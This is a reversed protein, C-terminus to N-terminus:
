IRVVAKTQGVAVAVLLVSLCRTGRGRKASPAVPGAPSRTEVRSCVTPRFHGLEVSRPAQKTSACKERKSPSSTSLRPLGATRRPEPPDKSAILPGSAKTARARCCADLDRLNKSLHDIDRNSNAAPPFWVLRALLRRATWAGGTSGVRVADHRSPMRPAPKIKRTMERADGCGISLIDSPHRNTHHERYCVPCGAGASRSAVVSEWEHAHACRWWLKRNSWVALKTPDVDRNRSPHLEAVLHPRGVALARSVAVHTRACIPCGTGRARAAVNAEWEHGHACRWWVKRNSGAGLAFPDLAGNRTPHLQELLKPHRVALSRERSITRAKACLPCASGRSRDNVRNFLAVMDAAVFWRRNQAPRSERQADPTARSAGNEAARSPM